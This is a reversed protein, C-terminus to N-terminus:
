THNEKVSFTTIKQQPQIEHIALTQMDDQQQRSPAFCPLQPPAKVFVVAFTSTVWTQPWTTKTKVM